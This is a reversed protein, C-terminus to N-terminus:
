PGPRGKLRSRLALAAICGAVVVGAGIYALLLPDPAAIAGDGGGDNTGNTQSSSTSSSSTSNTGTDTTSGTGTATGSGTETGTGTGTSTGTGTGTGPDPLPDPNGTCTSSPNGQADTCPLLGGNTLNRNSGLPVGQTKLLAGLNFKHPGPNTGSWLVKANYDLSTAFLSGAPIPFQLAETRNVLDLVHYTGAAGYVGYAGDLSMAASHQAPGAASWTALVQGNVTALVARGDNTVVLVRDRACGISAANDFGGNGPFIQTLSVVPKHAWGDPEEKVLVQYIRTPGDNRVAALYDKKTVTDRWACFDNIVSGAPAYIQTVTAAEDPLNNNMTIAYVGVHGGTIESFAWAMTVHRVCFTCDPETSGLSYDWPAAAIVGIDRANGPPADGGSAAIPGTIDSDCFSAGACPTGTYDPPGLNQDRIKIANVNNGSDCDLFSAFVKGNSYRTSVGGQRNCGSEHITGAVQLNYPDLSLIDQGGSSSATRLIVSQDFPDVAMGVVPLSAHVSSTLESPFELNDLQTAGCGNCNLNGAVLYVLPATFISQISDTGKFEKAYTIIQHSDFLIAVLDNHYGSGVNVRKCLLSLHDWFPNFGPVYTHEQVVAGNAVITVQPAMTGDSVRLGKLTISNRPATLNDLLQIQSWGSTTFSGQGIAFDFGFKGPLASSGTPDIQVPCLEGSLSQFTQTSAPPVYACRSALQASVMQNLGLCDLVGPYVPGTGKAATFSYFPKSPTTGLTYNRFDEFNAARPVPTLGTWALNDVYTTTYPAGDAHVYFNNLVATLQRNVILSTTLSGWAFAMRSQISTCVQNTIQVHFLGPTTVTGMASTAFFGDLFPTVTAGNAAGNGRVQFGVSRQVYSDVVSGSALSITGGKVLFELLQGNAMTPLYVDFAFASNTTCLDLARNQGVIAGYSNTTGPTFALAQQSGTLTTAVVRLSGAPGGFSSSDYSSFWSGTPLTNPTMGEFGEVYGTGTQSEVHLTMTLLSGMLLAAALLPRRNM